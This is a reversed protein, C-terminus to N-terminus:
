WFLQQYEGSSGRLYSQYETDYNVMKMKKRLKRSLKAKWWAKSFSHTPYNDSHFWASRHELFEKDTLHNLSRLWFWTYERWALCDEGAHSKKNFSEKKTRRFTRSMMVRGIYHVYVLTM